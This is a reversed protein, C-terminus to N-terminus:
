KECRMEAMYEGAKQMAAEIADKDEEEVAYYLRELMYSLETYQRALADFEEDRRSDLWGNGRISKM